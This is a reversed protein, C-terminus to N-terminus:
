GILEALAPRWRLRIWQQINYAIVHWLLEARAKQLGRVHFRRLRMKEKLCLNSFEAVRARLKYTTKVAATAMKQRLRVVAEDEEIRTVTRAATKPCCQPKSSCAACDGAMARYHHEIKGVGTDKGAAQLCRGQPCVFSNSNPDFRFLTAAFEEAIGNRRRQEATDKGQPDYPGLLDTRGDWEMINERSMYGEDVLVQDPLRGFNHKVQELAPALQVFDSGNQSLEADVIVGNDADTVLQANYAPAFHKEPMKMIRAEPESTSVRAQQKDQETKKSDRVKQLEQRALQLRQAREQQVRKQAAEARGAQQEPDGLAQVQQRAESLCREMSAQRHFSAGSAVTRIRTGDQTVRRLRILGEHSLAALVEVFLQELAERRQVRFDSLTHYNIAEDGCLWRYAPHYECRRSLERASGVGDACALLWLAILLRPQLTAQGARGEVALIGEEFPSTDVGELFEWIARAPHEAEILEELCFVRYEYQSRDIPKFRPAPTPTSDATALDMATTASTQTQATWNEGFDLLQESM